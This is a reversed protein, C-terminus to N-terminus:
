KSCAPIKYNVTLNYFFEIPQGDGFAPKFRWERLTDLAAFAMVPHHSSVRYPQRPTGETDVVAGVIVPAEICAYRKGLPYKPKRTRIREPKTVVMGRLREAEERLTPTHFEVGALKRGAEGYASLDRSGIKTSFAKAMGLDWRADRENGLGSEALARLLVAMSLFESADGTQVRDCIEDLLVNTQKRAKRYKGDLLLSDVDQMREYWGKLVSNQYTQQSQTSAPAPALSSALFAVVIARAAFRNVIYNM